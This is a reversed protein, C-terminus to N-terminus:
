GADYTEGPLYLTYTRGKKERRIDNLLAGFYLAYGIEEKKFPIAGYISTQLVGPSTSVQKQIIPMIKRYLPDDKAFQAQEEKLKDKAWEQGDIQTMAYATKQYEQRAFDYNGNSWAERAQLIHLRVAEGLWQLHDDKNGQQEQRGQDPANTKEIGSEELSVELMKATDTALRQLAKETCSRSFELSKDAISPTLDEKKAKKLLTEVGDLWLDREKFNSLEENREQLKLGVARSANSLLQYYVAHSFYKERQSALRMKDYIAACEMASFGKQKQKTIYGFEKAIKDPSNRLLREFEIISEEYRGAQQLYLPLRLYTEIPYSISSQAMLKYAERLCTIAGGLDKDNKRQTAEKLLESSKEESATKERVSVEYKLSVGTNSQNTGKYPTNQQKGTSQRTAQKKSRTTRYALYIAGGIVLIWFVEM